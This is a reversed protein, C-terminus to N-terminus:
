DWLQAPEWSLDPDYTNIKSAITDTEAGLNKQYVVGDAGMEFSMIGSEGWKAPWALLAFGRKMTGNVRYDMAGGRAHAGQRTLIRFYYGHFPRPTRPESFHYGEKAALAVFPGMPSPPQGEVADWYLGDQAGRASFFKQAYELQGDGNRDVLYYERQADLYGGFLTIVRLENEGIRRNLLEEKGQATDFRWHGEDAVLPIPFPWAYAGVLLAAMQRQPRDFSEFPMVQMQEELLLGFLKRSNEDAVADGSDLIDKAEPGLIELLAARDGSEVAAKLARAAEEPSAYAYQGGVLIPPGALAPTSTRAACATCSLLMVVAFASKLIKNM